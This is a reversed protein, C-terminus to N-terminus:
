YPFIFEIIEIMKSYDKEAVKQVALVYREFNKEDIKDFQLAEYGQKRCMLNALMRATRGNEERFPHIFFLEGHVIAIDRILEEKNNYNNPLKV